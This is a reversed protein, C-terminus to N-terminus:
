TRGKTAERAAEHIARMRLSARKQAKEAFVPDSNLRTMREVVKARMGPRFKYERTPKTM